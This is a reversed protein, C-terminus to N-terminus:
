SSFDYTAPPRHNMGPRSSYGIGASEPRYVEATLYSLDRAVVSMQSNEPYHSLAMELLHKVMQDFNRNQTTALQRIRETPLMEFLEVRVFLEEIHSSTSPSAPLSLVKELLANLYKPRTTFSSRQVDNALRTPLTSDYYSFHLKPRNQAAAKSDV